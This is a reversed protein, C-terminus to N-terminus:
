FPKKVSDNKEIYYDLLLKQYGIEVSFLELLENWFQYRSRKFFGSKDCHVVLTGLLENTHSLVPLIITSKIRNKQGEYTSDYEEEKATDEILVMRPKEDEAQRYIKATETKSFVDPDKARLLMSTPQRNEKNACCPITIKGDVYSLTMFTAEFKIDNVLKANGNFMTEFFNYCSKIILQLNKTIAQVMFEDPAQGGGGKYDEQFSEQLDTGLKKIQLFAHRMYQDDLLEPLLRNRVKDACYAVLYFLLVTGVFFLVVVAAKVAGSIAPGLNSSLWGYLANSFIALGVAAVSTITSTIPANHKEWVAKIMKGM